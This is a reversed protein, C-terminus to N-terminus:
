RLVLGAVVAMLGLVAVAMAALNGTVVRQMVLRAEDAPLSRAKLSQQGCWLLGTVGLLTVVAGTWIVAQM